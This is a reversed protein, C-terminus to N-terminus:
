YYGGSYVGIGVGPSVLGPGYVGGGYVGPAYGGIYGRNYFGPGYGYGRYGSFGPGYGYGRYGGFGPGYGRGYFGGRRFGGGGYGFQASAPTAASLITALTLGVLALVAFRSRRPTKM